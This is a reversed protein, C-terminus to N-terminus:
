TEESYSPRALIIVKMIIFKFLRFLQKKVGKHWFLYRKNRKTVHRSLWGELTYLIMCGHVHFFILCLDRFESMWRYKRKDKYHWLDTSQITLGLCNEFWQPFPIKYLGSKQFLHAIAFTEVM